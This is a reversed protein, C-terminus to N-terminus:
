GLLYGIYGGAKIPLSKSCIILDWFGKGIGGEFKIVPGNLGWPTWNFDVCGEDWWWNWGFRGWKDWSWFVVEKGNGWFLVM